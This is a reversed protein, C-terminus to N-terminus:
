ATFTFWSSRLGVLWRFSDGSITRDAKSGDLVLSRVRGQWEGNGDRSVVQIRQLRGLAPYAKEIRRADVTVQWAHVPNGAHADYPDSQAVLYPRSGASTHGGSSSSFQTFAPKGEYTLIQRRTARVAANSAPHEGDVGKYVQCATTDCVQYYRRMDEARSWSAYTRAAVAQARVAEVHWSAPMEAPIVGQVYKDMSLINVTDRDASGPKPSAARLIGRYRVPGSPTWLTLPGRARLQADGVLADVGDPLWRHWRDTLYDVVTRGDEVELRWRKVGPIEPVPYTTRSGLDRVRLRPAPSVVVDRTTDGTILVRVKGRVEGWSTGPYYFELIQRHTLGQEAAGRAGYQSMGHGHGYGHGRVTLKRDDPVGFTQNVKVASSPPALAGVTALTALVCTTV